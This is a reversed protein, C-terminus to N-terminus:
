ESKKMLKSFLGKKNADKKEDKKEDKKDDKKTKDDKKESGKPTNPVAPPAEKPQPKSKPTPPTAVLPATTYMSQAKAASPKIPLIPIDANPPPNSRPQSPAAKLQKKLDNPNLMGLGPPGM